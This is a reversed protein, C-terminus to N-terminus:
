LNINAELKIVRLLDFVSIVMLGGKPVLLTLELCCPSQNMM